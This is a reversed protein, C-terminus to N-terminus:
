DPHNKCLFINHGKARFFTKMEVMDWSGASGIDIKIHVSEMLWNYMKEEELPLTHCVIFCCLVSCDSFNFHASQSSSPLFSTFIVTKTATELSSSCLVHLLFVRALYCVLVTCLITTTFIFSKM